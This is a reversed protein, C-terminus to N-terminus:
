ISDTAYWSNLLGSAIVAYCAAPNLLTLFPGILFKFISDDSYTGTWVALEQVFTKKKPVGSEGDGRVEVVRETHQQELKSLEALKEDKTTDTNYRSDRLYSTEPCFLFM